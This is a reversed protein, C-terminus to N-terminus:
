RFVVELDTIAVVEIKGALSYSRRGPYVVKLEDLGLDDIAIHM